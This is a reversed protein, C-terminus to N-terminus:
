KWSESREGQCGMFRSRSCNEKRLMDSGKQKYKKLEDKLKQIEVTLDDIVSRYDDNSSSNAEQLQKSIATHGVGYPRDENSSDSEKQFFPPDVAFPDITLALVYM